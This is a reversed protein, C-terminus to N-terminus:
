ILVSKNYSEYDTIDDFFITSYDYNKEKNSLVKIDDYSTLSGENKTNKQEYLLDTRIYNDNLNIKHM